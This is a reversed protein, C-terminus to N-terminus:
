ESYHSNAFLYYFENDHMNLNIKVNYIIICHFIAFHVAMSLLFTHKMIGLYYKKMFIYKEAQLLQKYKLCHCIKNNIIRIRHFYLMKSYNGMPLYYRKSNGISETMMQCEFSEHRVHFSMIM